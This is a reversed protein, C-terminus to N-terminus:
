TYEVSKAVHALCSLMGLEWLKCPVLTKLVWYWEGAVCRKLERAELLPGRSLSIQRSSLVARDRLEGRQAGSCSLLGGALLGRSLSERRVGLLSEHWKQV